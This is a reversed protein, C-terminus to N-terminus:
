IFIYSPYGRLAKFGRPVDFKYKKCKAFRTDEIVNFFGLHVIKEKEFGNSTSEILNRYASFSVM